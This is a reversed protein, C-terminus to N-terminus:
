MVSQCAPCFWCDDESPAKDLGVCGLHFWEIKCIDNDCAVMDGVSEGRRCTCWKRQAKYSRKHTNKKPSLSHLRKNATVNQSVEALPLKTPSVPNPQTSTRNATFYKAVLEPLVVRYFFKEAKEKKGGWWEENPLVRVIALHKELCVVFDCFDSKTCFIQCQVQAYYQHNQKLAFGLPGMELCFNKDQMAEELTAKRHSYPCKVEVVGRGCCDCTVVSDPSAAMFPIEPNVVLGSKEMMFEFHDDKVSAKYRALAEKEMEKGYVVAPVKLSKTSPYCVARVTSVAPNTTSTAVVNHLNSATIRGARSHHWYHCDAKQRTLREMKEAEEPTIAARNKLGACYQILEDLTKGDCKANRFRLFSKPAV